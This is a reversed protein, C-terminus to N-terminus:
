VKLEKWMHIKDNVESVQYGLKSYFSVATTNAIDTDLHIEKMGCMKVHDEMALMVQKAYGKGKSRPLTGLLTLYAKNTVNDNCYFLAASIISGADEITLVQGVSLVKDAFNDLSVRESLSTPLQQDIQCLFSILKLRDDCPTVSITASAQMNDKLFDFFLPASGTHIFLINGKINNEAIYQLMGSFAKGSYVPDLAIGYRHYIELLQDRLAESYNGYGGLLYKDTVCVDTVKRGIDIVSQLYNRVGMEAQKQMRAISIGVIQERGGNQLKGLLLGSQTMGTGTALFIYDFCVELEKAQFAIEQYVKKYARVPIAENGKGFKDGNIYYPKYGAARCEEIVTDVTKSVDTKKCTRIHADCQAILFSNFTECKDDNDDYPSVVYCPIKKMKAINAIVRCLNSRVNGYAIICNKNQEEMDFFFERAIRVKNGGFSFPHLDERKIYLQIDKYDCSLRQIPTTNFMTNEGTGKKRDKNIVNTVM